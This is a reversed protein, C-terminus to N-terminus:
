KGGGSGAGGGAQSGMNNTNPGSGSPQMGKSNGSKDTMSSGTTTNKDRSMQDKGMKDKSMDNQNTQAAPGTNQAMAGASTLALICATTLLLKKMTTEEYNNSPHFCNVFLLQQILSGKRVQCNTTASDKDADRRSSASSHDVAPRSSREQQFLHKAKGSSM